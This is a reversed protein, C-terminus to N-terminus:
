LVEPNVINPFPKGTFCAECNDVVLMGMKIRTGVTASGLHPAMSVNELNMLGPEVSPENEFVDLGAGAIANSELARVLAKEDVVPGRTTNILFASSKMLGLEAESILHRTEPCLAVHLSVFDATSLLTNKDVYEIGWKVEDAPDLRTRNWYIIKMSFGKARPIMAKGISGLGILGLTAGTVDSGLLQLPGWGKWGNARIMREGESIRRAVSMLLGWAIDATAEALVGPTNTVPIGLRTATEVDINNYGVGFNAILKLKPAAELVEADIQDPGNPVLVEIDKVADLLEPRTLTRDNPNIQMDCLHKLRDLVPPLM